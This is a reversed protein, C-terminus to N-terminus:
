PANELPRDRFYILLVALTAGTLNAILDWGTNIYGGVNTNPVLLVAIFEIVENVAGFGLGAAWALVMLGFTPAVPTNTKRLISKLGQWCVWTTVSFGFSHVVHDYKLFDSILWLSYLVRSEGNVPWGEPVTVLGGLMHLLGWLSLAWLTPNTLNIRRHVAWVAGMLVVMVAIYFLFENSGTSVAGLVAVLLYSVTFIVVGRITRLKEGM